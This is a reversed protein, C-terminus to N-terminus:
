CIQFVFKAAVRKLGLIDSFIAHCSGVSIGVDEAVERITIRRNEMVIKQVAETNESTTSTSPRGPRADDNVEERGETFLKYWKYISKQSVTCEGYAVKLMELTKSGKIGNKVCFKICIRQNM